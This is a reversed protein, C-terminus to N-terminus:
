SILNVAVQYDPGQYGPGRFKEESTGSQRGSGIEPL